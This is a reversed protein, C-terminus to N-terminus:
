RSAGRIQSRRPQSNPILTVFFNPPGVLLYTSRAHPNTGGWTSVRSLPQTRRDRGSEVQLTPQSGSPEHGDFGHCPLVLARSTRNPGSDSPVIPKPPTRGSTTTAGPQTLSGSHTGSLSRRTTVPVWPRASRRQAARCQSCLTPRGGCRLRTNFRGTSATGGLPSRSSARHVTALRPAHRARNALSM